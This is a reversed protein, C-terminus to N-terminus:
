GVRWGGFSSFGSGGIFDAINSGDGTITLNVRATDNQALSAIVSLAVTTVGSSTHRAAYPNIDSRFTQGTTVIQVVGSTGSAGGSVMSVQATLLYKGAAPATFVGTSSNYNANSVIATDFPCTYATGNGTIDSVTASRIYSFLPGINVGGATVTGPTTFAVYSLATASATGKAVGSIDLYLASADIHGERYAGDYFSLYGAGGAAALKMQGTLPSDTNGVSVGGAFTGDDGVNLDGTLALDTGQADPHLTKTMPSVFRIDSHFSGM